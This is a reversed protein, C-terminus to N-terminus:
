KADENFPQTNWFTFDNFRLGVIQKINCHFIDLVSGNVVGFPAHNENLICSQEYRREVAKRADSKTRRRFLQTGLCPSTASDDPFRLDRGLLLQASASSATAARPVTLSNEVTVTRARTVSRQSAPSPPNPKSGM